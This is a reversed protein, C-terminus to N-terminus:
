PRQRQVVLNVRSFGVQRATDIVGTVFGYSTDKDGKVQLQLEPKEKYLAELRARVEDPRVLEDQLQLSGDATVFIVVREGPTTSEGAAASPLNLPLQSEQPRAFTTTILFFLLLLFVVDILPTLELTPDARRRARTDRFNV